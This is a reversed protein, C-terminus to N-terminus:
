RVWKKRPCLKKPDGGVWSKAKMYCGCLSCRGQDKKYDPCQFCTELRETRIEPSCNGRRLAQGATKILGTAMEAKSAKIAPESKPNVSHFSDLTRIERGKPWPSVPGKPLEGGSRFQESYLILPDTAM